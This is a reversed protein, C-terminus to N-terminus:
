LITGAPDPDDIWSLVRRSQDKVGDCYPDGCLCWTDSDCAEVVNGLRHELERVRALLAKFHCCLDAASSTSNANQEVHECDALMAVELEANPWKDM